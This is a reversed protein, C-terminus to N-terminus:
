RYVITIDIPGSTVTVSLGTTFVLDYQLATNILTGALSITAIKPTTNTLADDLEVNGLPNNVVVSHLFGSGTKVLTTGNATINLYSFIQSPVDNGDNIVAAKQTIASQDSVPNSM